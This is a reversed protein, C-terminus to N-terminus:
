GARLSLVPSVRGRELEPAQDDLVGLVAATVTAPQVDLQQALRAVQRAVRGAPLDPVLRVADNLAAIKGTTWHLADSHRAIREDVVPSRGCRGTSRESCAAFTGAGDSLAALQGDLVGAVVM